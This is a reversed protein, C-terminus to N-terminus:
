PASQERESQAQRGVNGNAKVILALVIYIEFHITIIFTENETLVRQKTPTMAAVMPFGFCSQGAVGRESFRIPFFM